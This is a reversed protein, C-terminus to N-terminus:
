CDVEGTSAAPSVHRDAQNDIEYSTCSTMYELHVKLSDQTGHMICTKSGRDRYGLHTQFTTPPDKTPDVTSQRWSTGDQIPKQQGISIDVLM